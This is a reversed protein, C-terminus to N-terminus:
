NNIIFNIINDFSFKNNIDFYNNPYNKLNKDIFDCCEKIDNYLFNNDFFEPYCCRNPLIPINWSQIWKMISYWFWEQKATSLILKSERLTQLHKEWDELWKITLNPLKKFDYFLNILDSPYTSIIRDEDISTILFNIKPLKKVIEYFEYIWKDYDFRHPFIVDYKKNNFIPKISKDIWWPIIEFKDLKYECNNTINSLFFKSPIIVKDYIDLWWKEFNNLWKWSYIDWPVFSAWHMLSFMKVNINNREFYYKVLDLWPFFFDLFIIKDWNKINKILFKQTNIAHNFYEDPNEIWYWKFTKYSIKNTAFIINKSILSEKLWEFIDNFSSTKYLLPVILYLM